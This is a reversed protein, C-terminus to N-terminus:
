FSSEAVRVKRRKGSAEIDSDLIYVRQESAMRNLRDEESATTVSRVSPMQTQVNPATVVAPASTQMAGDGSFSTSKIKNINAMGMAIVAAANAAGVIQGMPVGLSQASTFATVAGQFMDITASAIRLAKIKKANKEANKEDSEYMDALSSLLGSTATAIANLNAIRKKLAEKEREEDEKAKKDAMEKLLNEHWEESALERDRFDQKMQEQASLENFLAETRLKEFEEQVKRIKEENEFEAWPDDEEFGEYEDAFADSAAKGMAEGMATGLEEGAAEAEEVNPASKVGNLYDKGANQGEQFNAKFSFGEKWADGIGEGAEKAHKKIDKFNGTFVDKVINGFGKFAAIATKIPTLLYQLLANGVGTVSSIIGSFADGSNAFLQIMWDAVKAVMNAIGELAGELIDFIPQLSAMVRKVADMATENDKLSETIKMIIPALLGIIGLIPQKGVLQMTEGVKGLKEKTSGLTPPLMKLTGGWEDFKAVLGKTASEYNGVNRQFNGISADMDKLQQNIEAIQAGVENRRAEDNTARWEEKLAAMKHVLSNYSQSTGAAAASVDEMSATTAYMADRLANQNVKLEEIAKKYADSGIALGEFTKKVKQGDEEVVETYGEIQKKLEKINNKLDGVSKVAEDTGVKLIVVNEQAEM